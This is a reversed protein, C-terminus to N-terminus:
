GVLANAPDGIALQGGGEEIGRGTGLAQTLGHHVELALLDLLHDRQRGHFHRLLVGVLDELGVAQDSGAPAAPRVTAGGNEDRPAKYIAVVLAYVRKM